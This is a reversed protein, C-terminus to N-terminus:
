RWMPVSGVVFRTFRSVIIDALVGQQGSPTVPVGISDSSHDPAGGGWGWGAARQHPHPHSLDPPLPIISAVFWWRREPPSRLREGWRGRDM